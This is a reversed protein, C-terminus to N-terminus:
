GVFFPQTIDGAYRNGSPPTGTANHIWVGYYAKSLTNGSVVTGTIPSVASWIAVDATQTLGADDDGPAGTTYGYLANNGLTNNAIVNNNLDQRPAHSHLTVGALGNGSASNEIVSNEYVAAGPGGAFLGIGAGQGKVGNGNAVNHSIVNQYVGAVGPQRQGNVIGQANHGAVTIGCDLVNDNVQNHTILNGATPGLEDTLLIGGSNGSVQNGSVVSQTVSLLHVGEGCDGPVTGAAACEGTPTAASVGLDNHKVTNNSIGVWATQQALIGEQTANEVVFGSVGSGNAGAGTILIGNMQGKADIVPKGKGILRVDKDITVMEHYTGGKVFVSSGSSAQGVAYGITACPSTEACAGTDHGGSAVYLAPASAATAGAVQLAAVMLGFVFALTASRAAPRGFRVM